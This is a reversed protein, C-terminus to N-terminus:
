KLKYTDKLNVIKYNDMNLDFTMANQGNRKLYDTLQSELYRKNVTDQEDTPDLTNKVRQENMNLDGTM